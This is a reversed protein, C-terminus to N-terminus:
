LIESESFANLVILEHKEGQKKTHIIKKCLCNKNNLVHMIFHKKLSFM